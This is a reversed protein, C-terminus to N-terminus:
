PCGAVRFIQVRPLHLIEAYWEERLLLSARRFSKGTSGLYIYGIHERCLKRHTELAAFDTTYLMPVTEQRLLASIWIGADTGVFDDSAAAPLVLLHEAAVLLTEDAALNEAMWEFAISDDYRFLRCCASPSFDYAGIFVIGWLMLLIPLLTRGLRGWRNERKALFIQVGSIELGALLSLPFFLLVEVFPRDLVTQAPLASFLWDVPVFLTLLALAIFSLLFFVEEPYNRWALPLLLLLFIGTEPVALYPEVSLKLLPSLSVRWVLIVILFVEVSLFIKQRKQESAAFRLSIARGLWTVAFLALTRTHILAAVAIGISASFHVRKKSSLLLLVAEFAFIGLLAPYKGWNVAFGPMYWGFGALLAGFFAASKSKTLRYVLLLVPVPLAALIIQGFLAILKTADARLLRTVFAVILHYGLHYYDSLLDRVPAFGSQLAAIIRYHTVSDFYPPLFLTKLYALRVVLSFGFFLAGGLLFFVEERTKKCSFFNQACGFCLIVIFISVALLNDTLLSFGDLFVQTM